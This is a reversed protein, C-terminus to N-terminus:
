INGILDIIQNINKKGFSVKDDNIVLCPVSMVNYKNKLEEFHQLDYAEARINPNETAIRQCAVVLDPCMTCSLSVLVKMDVSNKIDRIERYTQDDIKQGPGSANYLGLIFSTFEHGGPVGHFAIGTDEGNELYVRVCPAQNSSDHKEAVTVTLKDSIESLKTIFSELEASIPRNDLFLKLLLRREMKSFVGELQEKMEATFTEGSTDAQHSSESVTVEKPEKAVPPKPRLGTKRQITAVYKELETAALAGDGTATVVQRLPKICVDGAAYLGDMSTKQAPDTIIYGQENLEVIGKILATDPSYGAFVFVGFTDGADARYETVEGTKTNKYRIYDLGNEGAVEEVITNTLITIKDHKKAPEAVSAACTFDEDRILITVHRAFKTLFVSEEAAAYGGGIVFIEKGTFFEGDCTACYAVGRGKHDEEGKFGIMRPHAGTAILIGLCDHDGRNTHVTKVNGDIDLGTAEALLFEAGFAEAQRRMTETLAKGSIKGLGPYNVVEDTITIQGGFQEKELVLVRYIARTLYLSATLGAPGGGVVVVDYLNDPSYNKASEM